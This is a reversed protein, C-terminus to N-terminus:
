VKCLINYAKRCTTAVNISEEHISTGNGVPSVDLTISNNTTITATHASVSDSRSLLIGGLMVLTIVIFLKM